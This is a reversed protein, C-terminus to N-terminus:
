SQSVAIKWGMVVDEMIDGNRFDTHPNQLCCMYRANCIASQILVAANYSILIIWHYCSIQADHQLLM